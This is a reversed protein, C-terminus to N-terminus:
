LTYQTLPIQAMSWARAVNARIADLAARHADGNQFLGRAYLGDEGVCGFLLGADLDGEAEWPTCSGFWCGNVLHTAGELAGWGAVDRTAPALELADRYLPRGDRDIRLRTSIRRFAYKEGRDIRGFSWPDMWGLRADGELTIAVDQRFDSGAFPISLTPYIELSAGAEVRARLSQEAHGGDPMSHIKAAAPTLVLARAGSRVEIEIEYRDGSFFGPAASIVQVLLRGDPLEFGRMVRLPAGLDRVALRTRGHQTDFVLRSRSHLRATPPEAALRATM